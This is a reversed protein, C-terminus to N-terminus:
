SAQGGVMQQMAQFGGQQKAKQRVDQMSQIVLAHLTKDSKKLNLLESKRAEYPMGLMQLAIQEAQALMDEPTTGGGGAPAGGAPAGGAAM